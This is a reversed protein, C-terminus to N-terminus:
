YGTHGGQKQICARMRRSMSAVNKKLDKLGISHWEKKVAAKLQPVSRFYRGKLGQQVMGWLNEIWNLDPSHGPWDRIYDVDSHLIIRKVVAPQHAPANDMLITFEEGNFLRKGEPIITDRLVAIFEKHGVGKLVKGKAGRYKNKIGTTGSVYRLATVGHICAGAYVHVKRKERTAPATKTQGEYHWEKAIGKSDLEFMKFDLVLVNKWSRDRHTRCFKLRRAKVAAPLEKHAQKASYKMAKAGKHLVRNVSWKSVHKSTSGTSALKQAIKRCSSNRRTTALIRAERAAAKGIIRPRGSRSQDSVSGTRTFRENWTKFFSVSRGTSKAAANVDGKLAKCAAVTEMRAVTRLSAM